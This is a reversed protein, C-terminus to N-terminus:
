PAGEEHRPQVVDAGCGTRFLEDLRDAVNRDVREPLSGYIDATTRISAHRAPAPHGGPARRARADYPRRLPPATPFHPGRPRRPAAAPGYVRLRFNTARVPGGGPAQLVLDVPDTRGTRALHAALEDLVREPVSVTRASAARSWAGRSRTSRPGYLSSAGCSTWRAWGCGSSRQKACVSPASSSPWATTSPCPTPSVSSTPPRLWESTPERPRHCTSEGARPVSSRTRISPGRCSPACCGYNTRVTKPALLREVM